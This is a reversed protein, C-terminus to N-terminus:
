HAYFALGFFTILLIAMGSLFTNKLKGYKSELQQLRDLIEKKM